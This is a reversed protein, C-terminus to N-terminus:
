KCACTNDAMNKDSISYPKGTLLIQVSASGAKTCTNALASLSGDPGSDRIEIKCSRVRINGRGSLTVGKRCNTFQYDGTSSNFQLINGNGDDQLCM